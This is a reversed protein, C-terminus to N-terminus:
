RLSHPRTKERRCIRIIARVGDEARRHGCVDAASAGHRRADSSPISPHGLLGVGHRSPQAGQQVRVDLGAALRRPRSFRLFVSLLRFIQRAGVWDIPDAEQLLQERATAQLPRARVERLRSLGTARCTCGVKTATRRVAINTMAPSTIFWRHVGVIPREIPEFIRLQGYSSWLPESTRACLRKM